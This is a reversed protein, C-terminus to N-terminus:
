SSMDATHQLGLATQLWAHQMFIYIYMCTHLYRMGTGQGDHMCTGCAAAHLYRMGSGQGDHMCTGCAAAKAMMCAYPQAPVAYRCPAKAMMCAHPPPYTSCVPMTATTVMMCAHMGSSNGGSGEGSGM